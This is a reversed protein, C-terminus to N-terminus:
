RELPNVYRKGRQQIQFPQHQSPSFIVGGAHLLKSFPFYLMLVLVFFLHLLFLPYRPVAAPHLTMLGMIFGKVDVVDVHLWYNLLIGTGAILGLLILAFYDPINSIYLTRPLALRRWFLYLIAAGLLCGFFLAVNQMDLVLGPVPYTFYRLHRFLVAVLVIHFIWAGAWLWKDAKFLNPFIVLNGLVRLVSGGETTPAPTLAHPLPMPARLYGILRWLIGVIFTLASFYALGIFFLSLLTWIIDNANM